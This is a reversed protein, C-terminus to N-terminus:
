LGAAATVIDGSETNTMTGDNSNASADPITPYSAGEGMRWWGVLNAADSHSSLDAPRGGNYIEAVANPDLEVDWVSVEDINGAFPNIDDGLRGIRANTAQLITGTCDDSNVTPAVAAGDVYLTVGAALESGDYTMAVHHWYGDNISVGNATVNIELAGGTHTLKVAPRGSSALSMEWGRNGVRKAIITSITANTTTRIWASTSFADDKEFALESVNGIDVFEDSGDLNNSATSYSRRCAPTIGVASLVSM